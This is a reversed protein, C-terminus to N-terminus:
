LYNFCYFSLLWSLIVSGRVVVLIHSWEKVMLIEVCFFLLFDQFFLILFLLYLEMTKLLVQVCM